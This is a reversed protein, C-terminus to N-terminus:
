LNHISCIHRKQLMYAGKGINVPEMEGWLGVPCRQWRKCPEVVVHKNTELPKHNIHLCPSFAHGLESLQLACKVCGQNCSSPALAASM